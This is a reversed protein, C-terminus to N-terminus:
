VQRSTRRGASGGFVGQSYRRIEEVANSTRLQQEIIETSFASKPRAVVYAPSVMGHVTVAGFGGQWARVMNYV